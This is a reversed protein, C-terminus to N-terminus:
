FYKYMSSLISVAIKIKRPSFLIMPFFILYSALLTYALGTMRKEDQYFITDPLVNQAIIRVDISKLLYFSFGLLLLFTILIYAYVLKQFCILLSFLFILGVLIGVNIYLM